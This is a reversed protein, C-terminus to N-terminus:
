SIYDMINDFEESLVQAIDLEASQRAQAGDEPADAGEDSEKKMIEQIVKDLNMTQEIIDEEDALVNIEMLEAFFDDLEDDEGAAPEEANLAEAEPTKVAARADEGSGPGTERLAQAETQAGDDGTGDHAGRAKLGEESLANEGGEAEDRIDEFETGYLEKFFERANEAVNEEIFIDGAMEASEANNEDKIGLPPQQKEWVGQADKGSGPPLEGGQIEGDEPIDAKPANKEEFVAEKASGRSRKRSKRRKRVLVIILAVILIVIVGCAALLCLFLIETFYDDGEDVTEATTESEPATTGGTEDVGSQVPLATCERITEEEPDYDCLTKEGGLLCYIYFHGEGTSILDSVTVSSTDAETGESASEDAALEQAEDEGDEQVYGSANGAGVAFYEHTEISSIDAAADDKSEDGATGESTEEDAEEDDEEDFVLADVEYGMVLATVLSMGDPIELNEPMNLFVCLKEDVWTYKLIEFEGSEEDLTFYDTNGDEDELVYIVIDDCVLTQVTETNYVADAIEFGDPIEIGSLDSLVTMSTGDVSVSLLDEEEEQTTAEEEVETEESAATTKTEAQTQAQTTTESQTGGSATKVTVTVTFSQGSLDNGDYDAGDYVTVYVHGTGVTDGAVTIYVSDCDVWTESSCAASVGGDTSIEFAGVADEAGFYFGSSAGSTLTLSTTSVYYSGSAFVGAPLVAFLMAAALLIATIKQLNKKMM